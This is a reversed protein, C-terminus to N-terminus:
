LFAKGVVRSNDRNFRSPPFEPKVGDFVETSAPGGIANYRDGSEVARCPESRLRHSNLLRLTRHPSDAKSVVIIPKLISPKKTGILM